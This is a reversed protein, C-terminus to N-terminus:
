VEKALFGKVLKGQKKMWANADEESKFKMASKLDEAIEVMFGGMTDVLYKDAGRGGSNEILVWVGKAEKLLDGSVIRKADEYLSSM